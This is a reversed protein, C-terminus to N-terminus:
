AGTLKDVWCGGCNFPEGCCAKYAWNPDMERLAQALVERAVMTRTAGDDSIFWAYNSGFRLTITGPKPDMGLISFECHVTIEDDSM